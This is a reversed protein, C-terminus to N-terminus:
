VSSQYFLGCGGLCEQSSACCFKLSTWVPWTVRVEVVHGSEDDTNTFIYSHVMFAKVATGRFVLFM